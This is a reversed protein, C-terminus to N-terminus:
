CSSIICVIFVQKIIVCVGLIIEPSFRWPNELTVVPLTENLFTYKFNLNKPGGRFM